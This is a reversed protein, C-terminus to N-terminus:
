RSGPQLAHARQRGRVDFTFKVLESNLIQLGSIQRITQNTTLSLAQLRPVGDITKIKYAEPPVPENTEDVSWGLEWDSHAVDNRFSIHEAVGKRLRKCEARTEDDFQGLATALAFYSDAIPKATMTAFIIDLRRDPRPFEDNPEALFTGIGSRMRSVTESFTTIYGGITRHLQKVAPQEHYPMHQASEDM